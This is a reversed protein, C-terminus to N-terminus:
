RRASVRSTASMTLTGHLHKYRGRNETFGSRSDTTVAGVRICSSATGDRILFSENKGYNQQYQLSLLPYYLRLQENQFSAVIGDIVAQLFKLSKPSFVVM